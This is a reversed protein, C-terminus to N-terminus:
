TSESDTDIGSNGQTCLCETDVGGAGPTGVFVWTWM